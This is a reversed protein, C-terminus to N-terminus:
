LPNSAKSVKARHEIVQSLQAKTPEMARPLGCKRKGEYLSLLVWKVSNHSNVGCYADRKRQTKTHCFIHLMFDVMGVMRLTCNPSESVKM